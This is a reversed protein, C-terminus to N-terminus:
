MSGAAFSKQVVQLGGIRSIPGVILTFITKRAARNAVLVTECITPRGAQEWLQM